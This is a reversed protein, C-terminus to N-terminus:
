FIGDEYNKVPYSILLSIPNMLWINMLDVTRPLVALNDNIKQCGDNM